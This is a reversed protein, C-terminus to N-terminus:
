KSLGPNKMTKEPVKPAKTHAEKNEAAAKRSEKLAHLQANLNSYAKADKDQSNVTVEGSKSALSAKLTEFDIKDKQVEKKTTNDKKDKQAPAADVADKKVSTDKQDVATELLEMMRVCAQKRIKGAASGMNKLTGDAKLSQKLYDQCAELAQNANVKKECYDKIANVMDTYKQTNGLLSTKKVSNMAECIDKLKNSIDKHKEAAIKENKAACRRAYQTKDYDAKLNERTVDLIGTTNKLQEIRGKKEADFFTKMEKQYPLIVEKLKEEAASRETNYTTLHTRLDSSLAKIAKTLADKKDAFQPQYPDKMLEDRTKNIAALKEQVEKNYQAINTYVQNQITKKFTDRANKVTATLAARGSDDVAKKAAEINANLTNATYKVRSEYDGRVRNLENEDSTIFNIDKPKHKLQYNRDLKELDGRIAEVAQEYAAQAEKVKPDDTVDPTAKKIADDFPSLVKHGYANLPDPDKLENLGELNANLAKFYPALDDSLKQQRAARDAQYDAKWDAQFQAADLKRNLDKLDEENLRQVTEGESNDLEYSQAFIDFEKANNKVRDRLMTEYNTFYTELDAPTKVPKHSFLGQDICENGKYKAFGKNLEQADHYILNLEDQTFPKNPDHEDNLLYLSRLSVHRSNDHKDGFYRESNYHMDKTMLIRDYVPKYNEYNEAINGHSNLASIASRKFDASIAIAKWLKNFTEKFNEQTRQEPPFIKQPDFFISDEEKEYKINFEQFLSAMDDFYEDAHQSFAEPAANYAHALDRVTNAVDPSVLVTEFEHDIVYDIQKKTEPVLYGM